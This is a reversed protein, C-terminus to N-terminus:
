RILALQGVNVQFHKSLMTDQSFYSSGIDSGYLIEPIASMREFALKSVKQGDEIMFPVDHARVELAAVTGQPSGPTHVGFGPDFFGAYHTRLEGSTPDYAIMEASLQAPVRVRERSLLLYFEEPDLVIRDKSEPYVPEWFEAPDYHRIRTLDLLQSNKKARYGVVRDQRLRRLDVSMFVGDSVALDQEPSGDPAYLIPEVKHLAQMDRDGFRTDGQLLRLQNLSLGTKLKIAFSRPVIELFLKGHYGAVIEDFKYSQDSIVRTFVDLRGTSSKPNAKARIAEPLALEEVLPILYPQNRELVTGDRLDIEGMAYDALKERVASNGPLFSCRLRYATTGLRLDLSAPQYSADDFILSTSDIWRAQVAARLCQAPLVGTTLTGM